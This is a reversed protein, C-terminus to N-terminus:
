TIGFLDKQLPDYGSLFLHDRNQDSVQLLFLLCIIRSLHFIAFCIQFGPLISYGSGATITLTASLSPLGFIMVTAHAPVTQVLGGITEM